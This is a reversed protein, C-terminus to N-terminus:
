WGVISIEKGCGNTDEINLFESTSGDKMIRDLLDNILVQDMIRFLLSSAPDGAWESRDADFMRNFMDSAWIISGFEDILISGDNSGRFFIEIAKSIDDDPFVPGDINVVPEDMSDRSEMNYSHFTALIFMQSGNNKKLIDCNPIGDSLTNYGWGKRLAPM